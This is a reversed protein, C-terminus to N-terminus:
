WSEIVIGEVNEFHSDRSVLVLNHQAAHAAIWIDNEPIPKGKAHLEYKIKGYFKATGSDCNLVKVNNEFLELSMLNEKSRSSKSAGFYLEGMVIAPVLFDNINALRDVVAGENSFLAILINTDLLYKGNM